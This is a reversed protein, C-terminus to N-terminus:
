RYEKKRKEIWMVVFCLIIIPLVIFVDGAVWSEPHM